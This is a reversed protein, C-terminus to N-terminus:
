PVCPAFPPFWHALNPDYSLSTLTFISSLLLPGTKLMFQNDNEVCSAGQIVGKWWQKAAVGAAYSAAGKPPTFGALNPRLVVPFMLYKTLTNTVRWGRNPVDVGSGLFVPNNSAKLFNPFLPGTMANDTTLELTLIAPEQGLDVMLWKPLDGGGGRNSKMQATSEEVIKKAAYETLNQAGPINGVGAQTLVEATTYEVVSDVVGDWNPLAPPMGAAALGTNIGTEVASKCLASASCQVLGTSDIAAIVVTAVAKKISDYAKSVENVVFGVADVVGTVISVAGEFVDGIDFGSTGPKFWFHYGAPVTQGPGISTYNAILYGFPDQVFGFPISFIDSPIQHDHVVRYATEGGKPHDWFWPPAFNSQNTLTIPLPPPPGPPDAGFFIKSGGAKAANALVVWPAPGHETADCLARRGALPLVRVYLPAGYTFLNYRQVASPGSFLVGAAIASFNLTPLSNWAGSQAAFTTQFVLGQAPACSGDPLNQKPFEETAVQVRGGTVGPLDTFWRIQRTADNFNQVDISEMGVWGRRPAGAPQRALVEIKSRPAYGRLHVPVGAFAIGQEPGEWFVRQCPNPPFAVIRLQYPIGLQVAPVSVGFVHPNDTRSLSGRVIPFPGIAPSFTGDRGPSFRSEFEPIMPVAYLDFDSPQPTCGFMTLSGEIAPPPDTRQGWLPAPALAAVLAAVASVLHRRCM